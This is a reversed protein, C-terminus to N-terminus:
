IEDERDVSWEWGILDSSTLLSRIEDNNFGGRAGARHKRGAAIM